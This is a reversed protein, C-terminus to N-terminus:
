EFQVVCYIKFIDLYINLIFIGNCLLLNIINIKNELHYEFERLWQGCLHNPVIILTAKSYIKNNKILDKSKSKNENILSIIQLTKGMGVEDFLGGGKFICKKNINKCM